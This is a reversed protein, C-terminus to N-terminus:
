PARGRARRGPPACRCRTRASRSAWASLPACSWASPRFRRTCSPARARTRCRVDLERVAQGRSLRAISAAALNTSAEAVALRASAGRRAARGTNARGDGHGRRDHRRLRRRDRGRRRCAGALARGDSRARHTRRRHPRRHHHPVDQRGGDAFASRPQVAERSFELRGPRSPPDVRRSTRAQRADPAAQGATSVAAHRHREPVSPTPQAIRSSAAAGRGHRQRRGRLPCRERACDSRVGRTEPRDRPRIAGPGRQVLDGDAVHGPRRQPHRPDRVARRTRTTSWSPSRTPSVELAWTTSRSPDPERAPRVLSRDGRPM